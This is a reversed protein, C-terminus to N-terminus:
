SQFLNGEVRGYYVENRKNQWTEVHVDNVNYWRIDVFKVLDLHYLKRQDINFLTLDLFVEKRWCQVM